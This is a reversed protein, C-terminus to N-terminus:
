KECLRRPGSYPQYTCDSSRFSRYSASCAEINCQPVGALGSILSGQSGQAPAPPQLHGELSSQPPAANTMFQKWILTPLQGGTVGDMPTNDDNGVWVGVTYNPDFGIFWADRHEQSTGTKGAAVRDLRAAQGTGREVALQLMGLMGDQAAGLPQTKSIDPAISFPTGNPAEFTAIGYPEVPAVGRWISAYAGTLDLLSVESAGLILSPTEALPADIGLERAAAVINPLGVEMGLRVTAVNLSRAMAEALSVRGNYEGDFNEPAWGDIEIPSDELAMEPTAGMKLAAYYTFLKFTSGPQRMALARNFQSEEYDRGGVMALVAGDPGLVVMAAQSAGVAAGQQDMITRVSQEAITQLTPDLTTTVRVHGLFQGAAEQAQQMAWDAFWTGTGLEPARPSLRASNLQAELATAEDLLGTNTMAKLVVSARERAGALNELPNLSSPSAILGALMASEAIGLESVEKNFYVRAAAPMGTAGAGLYVNNLYLALIEDKSLRSELWLSLFLEQVKRRLTRDPELYLIKLLQQTITSGGERIEGASFNRGLARTIGWLDIGWHEQFRRDEIALVANVLHDPFAERPAAVAQYPGRQILPRGDSSTLAIVQSDMRGSAIREFPVDHLAWAMLGALSALGVVMLWLFVRLGKGGTSGRVPMPRAPASVVEEDATDGQEATIPVTGRRDSRLRGATRMLSGMMGGMARLLGLLDRGLARSLAVLAQGTGPGRHDAQMSENSRDEYERSAPSSGATHDVM